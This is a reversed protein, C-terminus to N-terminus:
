ERIVVELGYEDILRYETYRAPFGISWRGDGLYTIDAIHARDELLPHVIMSGWQPATYNHYYLLLYGKYLLKEGYLDRLYFGKFEWTWYARFSVSNNYVTYYWAYGKRGSVLTSNNEYSVMPMSIKNENSLTYLISLLSNLSYKRSSWYLRATHILEASQLEGMYELFGPNPRSFRSASYLLIFALTIIALLLIQGRRNM